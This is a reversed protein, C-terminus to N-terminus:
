NENMYKNFDFNTKTTRKDGFLDFDDSVELAFSAAYSQQMRDEIMMSAMSMSRNNSGGLVIDEQEYIIVQQLALELTTCYYGLKSKRLTETSFENILKLHALFEVIKCKFTIYIFIM